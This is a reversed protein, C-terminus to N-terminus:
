EISIGTRKIVEAWRVREDTLFRDFAQPSVPAPEASQQEIKAIVDAAALAKNLAQNLREVIAAPTGAPALLGAWGTVAYGPLGAESITPVDPLLASRRPGAVALARLKGSRIHPLVGAINAIMIPVQGSMVDTLAQSDSKYQISEIRVGAQAAFLEMALNPSSGLGPSAYSLKGPAARARDILEHVSTLGTAPDVVLVSQVNVILGIGMLDRGPDYPMAKMLSPNITIPGPTGVLLTYGDPTARAVAEAGINGGAGPKNDVVIQQGLDEVMKAAVLRAFLDTSGGPAFPVIMRVPRDPYRPATSQARAAGAAVVALGALLLTRRKSPIM